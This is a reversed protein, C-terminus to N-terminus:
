TCECGHDLWLGKLQSPPVHLFPFLRFEVHSFHKSKTSLSLGPQLRDMMYIERLIQNKCELVKQNVLERLPDNGGFTTNQCSECLFIDRTSSYFSDALGFLTQLIHLNSTSLRPFEVAPTETGTPPCLLWTLDSLSGQFVM